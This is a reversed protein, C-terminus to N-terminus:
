GLRVDGTSRPAHIRSRRSPVGGDSGGSSTGESGSFRGARADAVTLGTGAITGREPLFDIRERRQQRGRRRDLRARMLEVRRDDLPRLAQLAAVAEATLVDAYARDVGARIELGRGKSM